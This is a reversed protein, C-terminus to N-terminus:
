IITSISWRRNFLESLINFLDKNINKNLIISFSEKSGLDKISHGLIVLLDDSIIYRDHIDQNPYNRFEINLYEPKFDNIDRILRRRDRNRLNELRTLFKISQNQTSSLIDLTRIGCYPDVIKLEGKLTKLIDKSLVRKSSYRKDPEFYYLETFKQKVKYILYDKGPKMIEYYVSDDKKHVFIRDGARNLSNIVSIKEVGIEKIERIILAIQEATLIKIDLIDKSVWLIWLYRDIPVVYNDFDPLESVDAEIFKKIIDKEM